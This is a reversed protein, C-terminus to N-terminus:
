SSGIIPGNGDWEPHFLDRKQNLFFYDVGLTMNGYDGNASPNRDESTNSITPFMAEGDEFTGGAPLMGEGVKKWRTSQGPDRRYVMFCDADVLRMGLEIWQTLPPMEGIDIHVAAGAADGKCGAWLTGTDNGKMFFGAHTPSSPGQPSVEDPDYLTDSAGAVPNYNEHTSLGVFWNCKLYPDGGAAVDATGRANFMYIRCGFTITSAIYKDPSTRSPNFNPTVALPGGVSSGNNQITIGTLAASAGEAGSSLDVVGAGSQGPWYVVETVNANGQAGLYTTSQWDSTRYGLLPEWECTNDVISARVQRATAGDDTITVIGDTTPGTGSAASAGAVSCRYTGGSTGVTDGKAYDVSRQWAGKDTNITALRRPSDFEEYYQTTHFRGPEAIDLNTFLGAGSESSALLPGKFRSTPM